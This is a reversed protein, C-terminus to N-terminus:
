SPTCIVAYICIRLCMVHALASWYRYRTSVATPPAAPEVLSQCHPVAERKSCFLQRLCSLGTSFILSELDNRAVYNLALRSYVLCHIRTLFSPPLTAPSIARRNLVSVARGPWPVLTENEAGIYSPECGGRVGAGPYRVSVPEVSVRACARVCVYLHEFM